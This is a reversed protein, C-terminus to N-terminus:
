AQSRHLVVVCTAEFPDRKGLSAARSVARAAGILARAVRSRAGVKWSFYDQWSRALVTELGHAAGWKSVAAPRIAARMPARFPAYGAKGADPNGLVTRYFWVHFAHPSLKTVLGPLSFPDPAVLLMIGGPRLARAMNELARLPEDLHELVFTSLVVDAQVDSLDITQIDGLVKRSLKENRDLQEQSIDVGVITCGSPFRFWTASGCGAELVVPQAARQLAQDVLAQLEELRVQEACYRAWASQRDETHRM